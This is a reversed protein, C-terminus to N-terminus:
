RGGGRGASGGRLHVALQTRTAIGLKEYIRVLHSKVTSEAIALAGAVESNRAGDAVLRAVVSERKTLKAGSLGGLASDGVASPLRPVELACAYSQELFPHSARLFGLWGALVADDSAAGLLDVAAVVRGRARLLLTTQSRLGIPALFGDLYAEADSPELNALDVISQGTPGLRGPAFPDAVGDRRERAAMIRTIDGLGTAQVHTVAVARSRRLRKDVPYFLGLAVDGFRMLWVLAQGMLALRPNGAAIAEGASLTLRARAQTPAPIVADTARPILEGAAAAGLPRQTQTEGYAASRPSQEGAPRPSGDRTM